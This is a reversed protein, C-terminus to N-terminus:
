RQSISQRLLNMPVLKQTAPCCVPGCCVGESAEEIINSIADEKFFKSFDCFDDVVINVSEMVTQTRMNYVRYAKSSNSYGIFVGIDSKSDFKGLHEHNNLIYCTSFFIHFYNVNPEYPTKKTGPCFHM